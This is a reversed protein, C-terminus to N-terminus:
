SVPFGLECIGGFEEDLRFVGFELYFDVEDRALSPFFSPGDEEVEFVVGNINGVSDGLLDFFCREGVGEQGEVENIHGALVEEFIFGKDTQM